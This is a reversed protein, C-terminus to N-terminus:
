EKIALEVAIALVLLWSVTYLVLALPDFILDPTLTEFLHVTSFDVDTAKEVLTLHCTFAEFLPVVIISNVDIASVKHFTLYAAVTNKLPRVATMVDAVEYISLHVAV